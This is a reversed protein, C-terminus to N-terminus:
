DIKLAKIKREEATLVVVPKQKPTAKQHRKIRNDPTKEVVQETNLNKSTSETSQASVEVSVFFLLM